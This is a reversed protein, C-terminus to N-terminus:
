TKKMAERDILTGPLLGLAGVMSPHDHNKETFTNFCNEHALYVGDEIKPSTMHSAVIAWNPNAEVGLREAWRIAVELGYKWYELEYPPNASEHMQHCEQAPILPPGLDYSKREDNWHAFSVMFDASEFIIEKFKNLTEETPNAQYYLELMSIPHPQQWILGPAVKSPSQKGDIGVMKPWRAGEYGQQKALDKALPLIDNYWDLSKELIHARGWLPFH